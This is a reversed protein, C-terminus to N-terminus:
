FAMCMLQLQPDAQIISKARNLFAAAQDEEDLKSDVAFIDARRSLFVRSLDTDAENACHFLKRTM